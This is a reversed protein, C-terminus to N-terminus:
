DPPDNAIDGSSLEPGINCDDAPEPEPNHPSADAGTMMFGM